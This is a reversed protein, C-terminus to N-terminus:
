SHKSTYKQVDRRTITHTYRHTQTQIDARTNFAATPGVGSCLAASLFHDSCFFASFARVTAATASVSPFIFVVLPGTQFCPYCLSLRQFNLSRLFKSLQSRDVSVIACLNLQSTWYIPYRVHWRLVKLVDENSLLHSEKSSASRKNDCGQNEFGCSLLFYHIKDIQDIIKICIKRKELTRQLFM